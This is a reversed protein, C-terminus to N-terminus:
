LDKPCVMIFSGDPLYKRKKGSKTESIKRKVDESRPIGRLAAASKENAEKPRKYGNLGGTKLNYTDDREIFVENVIEAEAANLTERCDYYSLIEKSFNDLGYKKISKLLITGSGMYDDNMNKTSHVGVYIKNNILNIIKYLYHIM